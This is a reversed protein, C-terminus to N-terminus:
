PLVPPAPLPSEPRVPADRAASDALALGNKWRDPRDAVSSESLRPSWPPEHALLGLRPSASGGFALAAAVVRWDGGARAEPAPADPAPVDDGPLDDGPLEDAPVDDAPLTLEPAAEAEAVRLSSAPATDDGALDGADVGAPPMSRDVAPRGLARVSGGASRVLSLSVIDRTRGGDVVLLRAVFGSLVRAVGGRPAAGSPTRGAAGGRTCAAVGAADAAVVTCPRGPVPAPGAAVAPGAGVLVGAAPVRM